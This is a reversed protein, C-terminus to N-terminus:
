RPLGTEEDYLEADWDRRLWDPDTAAAEQARQIIESLVRYRREVENERTLEELRRRVADEVASTQSQGTLEALQRVLRHTEANKINLSM